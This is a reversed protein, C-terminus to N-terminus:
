YGYNSPLFYFNTRTQQHLSGTVLTRFTQANNGTTGDPRVPWRLTLRLEYLNTALLNAHMWRNSRAAMESAALGSATWNTVVPAYAAYPAVESNVVYSFAFDRAGASRGKDSASGTMARFKAAVANTTLRGNLMTYKPYTLLGIIDDSTRFNTVGYWPSASNTVRIYDVYNTLQPVNRAGSRIAELLFNGEQLIITDELNAKQVTLGTPLVGLIAVLAFSVIALCMAIEVMTFGRAGRRSGGAMQRAWTTKM